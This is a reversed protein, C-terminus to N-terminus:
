GNVLRDMRRNVLTQRILDEVESVQDINMFGLKVMIVQPSGNPGGPETRRAVEFILSGAGLCRGHDERNMNAVKLANWTTKTPQEWSASVNPTFAHANRNTLVYIPRKPLNMKMLMPACMALAGIGSVFLMVFIGIVLSDAALWLIVMLGIGVLVFLFGMPVAIYSNAIIVRPAPRGVWVVKEGRTLERRIVDEVGPPMEVGEFPNDKLLASGRGDSQAETIVDDHAETIIDDHAETIVDDHAETIIDDHAETIIDDHAETIVDDHAETIIDDEPLAPQPVKPRASPATPPKAPGSPRRAPSVPKSPPLELAPMDSSRPPTPGATATRPSPGPPPVLVPPSSVPPKGSAASPAKPSPPSAPSAPRQAPSPPTQAAIPPQPSPAPAQPKPPVVGITPAIQPIQFVTRCGPCLAPQGATADPVRLGMKCKPCSTTIPM